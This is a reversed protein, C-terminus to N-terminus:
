FIQKSYKEAGMIHISVYDEEDNEDVWGDHPKSSIYFVSGPELEYKTGDEFVITSRGSVVLGMHEVECFKRVGVGVHESWKWGPQYTARGITMTPMHVLEFKGKEFIKVEDPNDFKKLLIDTDM